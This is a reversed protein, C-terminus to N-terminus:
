VSSVDCVVCWVVCWVSWVVCWVSCVGCVGCLLCRGCWVCVGCVCEVCGGVGSVSVTGRNSRHESHVRLRPPQKRRQAARGSTSVPLRGDRRHLSCDKWQAGVSPTGVVCRGCALCKAGPSLQPPASPLRNLLTHGWREPRPVDVPDWSMRPQLLSQPQWTVAPCGPPDESITVGCRPFAAGEAGNLM